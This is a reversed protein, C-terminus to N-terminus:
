SKKQFLGIYLIVCIKKKELTRIINMAWDPAHMGIFIFLLNYPLLIFLINVNHLEEQESNRKM